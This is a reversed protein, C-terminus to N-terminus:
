VLRICYRQSWLAKGVQQTLHCSRCYRIGCKLRFPHANGSKSQGHLDNHVRTLATETSHYETYASQLKERLGHDSCYTVFQYAVCREDLKSLFALNSVPRYSPFVLELGLKKLLPIVIASLFPSPFTGEQLSKNMIRTIVPLLLDICEKVLHTPMPDLDCSKSPSKVILKRIDEESLIKFSDMTVNCEIDEYTVSSTPMSDLKDRIKQIKGIFFQSFQESLVDLSSCEPFKHESNSHFLGKVVNFLSKHDSGCESIKNSFFESRTKNILINVKNRQLKLLEEDIALDTKLYKRELKRRYQKATKIDDSYWPQRDKVPIDKTTVPAHKDLLGRLCTNYSDVLEHLEEPPNCVIDSHSLDSRLENIDIDRIKRFTVKKIVPAPKQLIVNFLLSWHDSIYSDVRPKGSLILDDKRTVLLDLTHGNRHTPGRIHQILGVSDFLDDLQSALRYCKREYDTSLDEYRILLLDMHFNFDGTICLDQPCLMLVELHSAFEELFVSEPVPNTQSTPPRYIVLLLCWCYKGISNHHWDIHM